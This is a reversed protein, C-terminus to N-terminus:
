RSDGFNTTFLLFHTSVLCIGLRSCGVRTSGVSVFPTFLRLLVKSVRDPRQLFPVLVTEVIKRKSKYTGSFETPFQVVHYYLRLLIFPKTDPGTQTDTERGTKERKSPSIERKSTETHRKEYELDGKKIRNDRKKDKRKFSGSSIIDKQGELLQIM